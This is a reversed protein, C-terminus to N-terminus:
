KVKKLLENLLNGAEGARNTVTNLIGGGLTRIVLGGLALKNKEAKPDGITGTMTLFQPLAVYVDNTAAKGFALNMQGAIPRSVFITVPINIPSNALVPDLDMKGQGDAKFASSQVSAASLDVRGGGAKIEANIMQIPSKKLQDMLGGGQGTVQGLLSVLAKEPSGLLEPITAIVNILTKLIASRVNLVSLNLNTVGGSFQGVLNKQLGAGTIGAGSFTTRATFTGSFEGKRDPWFTNIFPAV